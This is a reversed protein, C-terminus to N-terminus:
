ASAPQGTLAPRRLHWGTVAQYANGVELVTADGGPRGVIQLGVPLEAATFGCPVSLAPQGTLNWPLTFPILGALDRSPVLEAIPMSTGPLTPTLLGDLELEAFVGEVARTFLRRVARAAEVHGAPLILGLELLRRTEALYEGPRENLWLRHPGALEALLITFGVQQTLDLHPLDVEVLVAGLGEIEKVASEALTGVAPDLGTASFMASPLGLRLGAVSVAAAFPATAIQALVLAADAATRAFVGVHDLSAATAGIVTGARSVLGRTAKLGTVGTVAAPKRVSGGADTGLAFLSSGAAVSAGSGASSGGPYHDLNWPNRTPPTNQGGAFEHTVHKGLLVAGAERLRAVAAADQEPVRGALVRSGAEAPMGRVDLVDKVAFPIGHLPSRRPESDAQRAAALAGDRDVHAYTHVLPETVDLRALVSELLEVSSLERRDLM